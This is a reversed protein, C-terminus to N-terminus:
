KIVVKRGNQIAIGKFNNSVKQGALNYVAANNSTKLTKIAQIGTASTDFEVAEPTVETGTEITVKVLFCVQDGKNKFTIKNLKGNVFKYTRVDPNTYDKYSNFEEGAIENKFATGAIEQWYSPKDAPKTDVNVASYLTIASAVKGEPLTLVNEAGNSCKVFTYKTGDITAQGGKGFKKDEEINIQLKFGNGDTFEKVDSGPYQIFYTGDKLVFTGDAITITKIFYANNANTIQVTGDQSATFVVDAFEGKKAEASLDSGEMQAGTASFGPVRNGKDESPDDKKAVNLTIKQGKTIDAIKLIVGKGAVILYEDGMEFFKEKTGSNKYSLTLKSGNLVLDSYNSKDKKIYDFSKKDDAAKYATADYTFSETTLGALNIVTQANVGVAVLAMAILTFFKKMRMQKLITLLNLTFENTTMVKRQLYVAKEHVM